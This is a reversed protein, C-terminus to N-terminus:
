LSSSLRPRKVTHSSGDKKHKTHMIRTSCDIKGVICDLIAADEARQKFLDSMKAFHGSKKDFGVACHWGKERLRIAYKLIEYPAVQRDYFGTRCLVFPVDVGDLASPINNMPSIKMLAKFDEPKHLPDGFEDYELKTLPLDPNTTTRLVDVYPVEAYVASVLYNFAQGVYTANWGGASRGYLITHNPGMGSVKQADQIISACDTFTNIKEIATSGHRWWDDGNERGGRPMGICVYYGMKLWPLWRIPYGCSGNIGYAGYCSVILGRPKKVGTGIGKVVYYPAKQKGSLGAKVLKVSLVEPYKLVVSIKNSVSDYKCIMDPSTPVKLLFKVCEKEYDDNILLTISNNVDANRFIEIFKEGLSDFMYLCNRGHKITVVFLNPGSFCGDLGYEKNPYKHHKGKYYLSENLVFCESGVIFISGIYDGDAGDVGGMKLEIWEVKNSSLYGVNQYLWNTRKLFLENTNLVSEIELQYKPDKESYIKKVNKGDVIKASICDDFKLDDDNNKLYYICDDLFGFSDGVNKVSYLENVKNEEVRSVYLKNKEGGSTSDVIYGFYLHESDLNLLIHKFCKIDSKNWIIKSEKTTNLVIWVNYSLNNISNQIYITYNIEGVLIKFYVQAYKPHVPYSYLTMKEYDDEWTKIEDELQDTFTEFLKTEYKIHKKFIASKSDELIALDDKYVFDGGKSDIHVIRDIKDDGSLM